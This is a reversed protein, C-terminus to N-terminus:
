LSAYFAAEFGAYAKLAGMDGSPLLQMLITAAIGRPIDIWYYCNPLGAWTLSGASRGFRGPEPNLLFGLGWKSDMGPYFDSPSMVAPNASGIVGARLGGIQNTRMQAVMAPSLLGAGDNLIMRMFALYDAATSFLGAGGALFEPAPRPEFPIVKLSGDPNRTHMAARRQTQAADPLFCTDAMGLPATIHKAIYEDLRLGSAAEVARGAWDIGISYEWASGPDFMLPQRLGALLGTAASPAGTEKLYRGLVPNAFEYSFGATHTLLHRLTIATRAPRTIPKGDDAFGELVLPSALDALLEGIPADLSLRGAEVLQLAAFTTVAKTMSAVWFISDAQMPAPADLSRRGAAIEFMAGTKDTAAVVAGAIAGGNVADDLVASIAKLDM